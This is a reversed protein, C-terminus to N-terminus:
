TIERVKIVLCTLSKEGAILFQHPTGAPVHVVDGARLELRTGKETEYDRAQAAQNPRVGTAKDGTTLTANGALVHVILACSEHTEVEGSRLRVSLLAAHQPYERLTESASGDGARAMKRLYAGRELLVPTSWHDIPSRPPRSKPAVEDLVVDKLIERSLVDM